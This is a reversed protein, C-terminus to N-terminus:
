EALEARRGGVPTGVCEGSRPAGLLGVFSGLSICARRDAGERFRTSRSRTRAVGHRELPGLVARAVRVVSRCRRALDEHVTTGAWLVDKAAFPIAARAAFSQHHSSQLAVSIELSGILEAVASATTTA